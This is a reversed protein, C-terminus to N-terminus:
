LNLVNFLKNYYEDESVNISSHGYIMLSTKNM